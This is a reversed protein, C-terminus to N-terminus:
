SVPVRLGAIKKEFLQLPQLAMSNQRKCTGRRHERFLRAAQVKDVSVKVERHNLLHAKRILASRVTHMSRCREEKPVENLFCPSIM